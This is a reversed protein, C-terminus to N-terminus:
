GNDDGGRLWNKLMQAAIEPSEEAFRRIEQRLQISKETKINMIDAGSETAKQVAAPSPGPVARLMQELELRKKRRSKRRLVAILILVFLLLAGGGIAAYIAWDPLNLGGAPLLSNEQAYFPASLISIKDAQVDSSIGAARAVHGLLETTDVSGATASNITVSVMLDSVTGAVREVQQKDTNVNYDTQGQNKIYTESGDTKTNNEVYSSIDSNSENGAVGGVTDGDGRVVEQDYVKSGIIGEGKTSGDAAWDPQTYQTTEGVTHNVDVTSNVAVRVNDEGYLPVLVALIQARVRDNVEEELKMKLESADGSGATSDGGSYVTGKSDTIAINDIKLGQVAHAVLNRIASAQQDSLTMGGSMTVMVSASADIVNDSDLIYTRDEGQAITVVADKVGDMCRIVGAMRDQLDQLYAIKRDSETSMSGVGERYTKYAFGTTPYGQMLLDAKLQAEQAEPVLITDNGEVRYNTVGNENLYTVISSVEDSTLGTFLATYPKNYSIVALVVAGLVVVGLATGLVVRTKRSMGSFFGKAKEGFGKLKEQM